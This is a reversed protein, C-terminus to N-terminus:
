FRPIHMPDISSRQTLRAEYLAPDIDKLIADPLSSLQVLRPRRLRGVLRGVFGAFAALAGRPPRTTTASRPRPIAQYTM